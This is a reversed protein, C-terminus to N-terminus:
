SCSNDFSKFKPKKYTANIILAKLNLNKAINIFNKNMLEAIRKEDTIFFMTELFPLKLLNNGKDFFYPRVTEGIDGIEKINLKKM